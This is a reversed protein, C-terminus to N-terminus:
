WAMDRLAVDVCIRFVELSPSEAVEGAAGELAQGGKEMGM